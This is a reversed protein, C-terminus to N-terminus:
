VSLKLTLCLSRVTARDGHRWGGCQLLAPRHCLNCDSHLLRDGLLKHQRTLRRGSWNGAESENVSAGRDRAYVLLDCLLQAEGRDIYNLHRRSGM